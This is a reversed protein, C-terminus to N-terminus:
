KGILDLHTCQDRPVFCACRPPLLCAPPNPPSGFRVKIDLKTWRDFFVCCLGVFIAGLSTEISCRLRFILLSKGVVKLISEQIIDESHVAGPQGHLFHRVTLDQCSSKEVHMIVFTFGDKAEEKEHNPFM